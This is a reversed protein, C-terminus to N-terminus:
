CLSSECALSCGTGHTNRSIQYESEFTSFTGDENYLVNILIQKEEDTEAAKHDKTLPIHGGLAAVSKALAKMGELDKVNDPNNGTEQLILLAEPINPTLLGTVPLLQDCMVRIAEEPLLRAGSTAVM